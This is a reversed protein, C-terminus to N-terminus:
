SVMPHMWHISVPVHEGRLDRISRLSRDTPFGLLHMKEPGADVDWKYDKVIVFADTRVLVNEAESTGDLINYVWTM